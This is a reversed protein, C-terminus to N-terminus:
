TSGNYRINKRKTETRTHEVHLCYFYALLYFYKQTKAIFSKLLPPSSFSLCLCIFYICPSSLKICLYKISTSSTEGAVAGFIRGAVQSSRQSKGSSSPIIYYLLSLYKGQNSVLTILGTPSGRLLEKATGVCLIVFVQVWRLCPTTM